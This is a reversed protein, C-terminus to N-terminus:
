KKTKMLNVGVILFISTWIIVSLISTFSVSNYTSSNKLGNLITASYDICFHAFIAALLTKSSLYLACFFFGMGFVEVVQFVTVIINQSNLNVFHILAFLISTIIVPKYSGHHPLSELKGLIVGRFVFEEPLAGSLGILIAESIRHIHISSLFVLLGVFLLYVVITEGSMKNKWFIQQKIWYRNIVFFIFTVILARIIYVYVIPINIWKLGLGIFWLLVLNIVILTIIEGIVYRQLKNARKILVFEGEFNKPNNSIIYM